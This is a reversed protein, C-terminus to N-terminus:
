AAPRGCPAPTRRTVVPLRSGASASPRARATSAPNPAICCLVLIGSAQPNLGDVSESEDPLRSSSRRRGRASRHRCLGPCGYCTPIPPQRRRIPDGVTAVVAPSAVAVGGSPPNRNVRVAIGANSAGLARQKPQGPHLKQDPTGVARAPPQCQLPTTSCRPRGRAPDARM